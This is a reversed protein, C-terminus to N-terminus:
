PAVAILASASGVGPDDIPAPDPVDNVRQPGRPAGGAAEADGSSTESLGPCGIMGIHTRPRPMGRDSLDEKTRLLATATHGL